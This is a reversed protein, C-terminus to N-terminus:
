SKKIEFTTKIEATKSIMATASCYKEMSLSVATAMRKDDIEGTVTYHLNIKTFVKPDTEAREATVNVSFDKVEQRGKQLILMIDVGSCGALSALMVEMPRFGDELGGVSTSADMFLSKGQDNIAEMKFPSASVVKKVQIHM